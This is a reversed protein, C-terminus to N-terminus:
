AVNVNFFSTPIPPVKWGFVFAHAWERVQRVRPASRDQGYNQGNGPVFAERYMRTRIHDNKKKLCFVAYSIIQHSSNLRTSKRDLGPSQRAVGDPQEDGRETGIADHM